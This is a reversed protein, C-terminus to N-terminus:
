MVYIRGIAKKLTEYAYNEASIELNEIIENIATQQEPTMSKKWPGQPQGWAFRTALVQGLNPSLRVRGTIMYQALLEFAFEQWNRLNRDRCSKMTGLNQCIERFIRSKDPGGNSYSSSFSSYDKFRGIGYAVQAIQTLATELERLFFDDPGGKPSNRACAHGFRHALTWPTMPIKEDGKNNTYIMTVQDNDFEINVGLNDHVWQPSVEGVESYKNGKSSRILYIDFTEEVKLWRQKIKEVGVPSTVIGISAKDYGYARAGPKWDGLLEFKGIPMEALLAEAVNITNSDPM